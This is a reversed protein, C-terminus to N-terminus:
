PLAEDAKRAAIRAFAAIDLQEGRTAPDVGAARLGACLQVVHRGVGGSSSGLVFVVPGNSV